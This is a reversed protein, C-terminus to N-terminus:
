SAAARDQSLVRVKGLIRGGSEVEIQRYSTSGSMTGTPHIL